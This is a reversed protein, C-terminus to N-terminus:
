CTTLALARPSQVATEKTPGVPRQQGNPSESQQVSARQGNWQVASCWRVTMVRGTWENRTNRKLGFLWGLSPWSNGSLADAGAETQQRRRGGGCGVMLAEAATLMAVTGTSGTGGGAVAVAGAVEAEAARQVQGCRAARSWRIASGGGGGGTGAAAAEAAAAM